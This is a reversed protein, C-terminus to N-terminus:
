WQLEKKTQLEKHPRKLWIGIIEDIEYNRKIPREWDTTGKWSPRKENTIGKKNFDKEIQLKKKHKEKQIQLKVLRMM